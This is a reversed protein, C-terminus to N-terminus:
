AAQGFPRPPKAIVHYDIGEISVKGTGSFTGSASPATQGIDFAVGLDTDGAYM